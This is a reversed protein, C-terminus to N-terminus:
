FLGRKIAPFKRRKDLRPKMGRGKKGNYHSTEPAPEVQLGSRTFVPEQSTDGRTERPEKKKTSQLLGAAAKCHRLEKKKHLAAAQRRKETTLVIVPVNDDQPSGVADGFSRL